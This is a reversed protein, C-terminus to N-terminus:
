PDTCASSSESGRTSHAAVQSVLMYYIEQTKIPRRHMLANLVCGHDWWTNYEAVAVVWAVHATRTGKLRRHYHRCTLKERMEVFWPRRYLGTVGRCSLLTMALSEKTARSTLKSKLM